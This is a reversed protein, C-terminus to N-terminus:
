LREIRISPIQNAITPLTEDIIGAAALQELSQKPDIECSKLIVLEGAGVRLALLASIADTTTQWNLPLAPGLDDDQRDRSYFASVAVLAPLDRAFGKAMQETLQASTSVTPWELWTAMMRYTVDLLEVCLWHVDVPNGPRISDMERIANVLSGGGVVVLTEAPSQQDIWRTLADSLDVRDLLSGGVKVVRRM